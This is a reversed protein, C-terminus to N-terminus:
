PMSCEVLSLTGMRLFGLRECFATASDSNSGLYVRTTDAPLDDIVRLLLETAHGRRQFGKATGIIQILVSTPDSRPIFCVLYCTIVRNSDSSEASSDSSISAADDDDNDDDDNNRSSNNNNNNNNNNHHHHHHGNEFQTEFPSNLLEGIYISFCGQSNDLQRHLKISLWSSDDSPDYDFASASTEIMLEADDWSALRITLDNPPPSLRLDRRIRMSPSLWELPDDDDDDNDRDNGSGGDSSNAHRRDEVHIFDVAALAEGVTGNGRDRPMPIPSSADPSSRRHRSSYSSSYRPTTSFYHYGGSGRWAQIDLMMVTCRANRNVVFGEDELITALLDAKDLPAFSRDIVCRPSISHAFYFDIMERICMRIADPSSQISPGPLTPGRGDNGKNSSSSSFWHAPNYLFLSYNSNYHRPNSQNCFVIRDDLWYIQDSMVQCYHTFLRTYEYYWQPIDTRPPPTQNASHRRPFM